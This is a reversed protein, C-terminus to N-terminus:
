APANQLRGAPQASKRRPLHKYTIYTALLALLLLLSGLGLRHLVDMIAQVQNSFVAGLLLYFGAYFVAGLL